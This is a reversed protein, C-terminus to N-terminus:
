ISFEEVKLNTKKSWLDRRMAWITKAYTENNPKLVFEKLAKIVDDSAFLLSNFWEQRIEKKWDDVTKLDPRIEKVYKMDEPEIVIRMKQILSKYRKEKEELESFKEHKRKELIYGLYIGMLGSVLGSGFIAIIIEEYGVM